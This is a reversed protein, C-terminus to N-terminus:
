NNSHLGQGQFCLMVCWMDVIIARTHIILYNQQIAKFCMDQQGIEKQQPIIAIYGICKDNNTDLPTFVHLKELTTRETQKIKPSFFLM